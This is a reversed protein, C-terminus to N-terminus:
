NRLILQLYIKRKKENPKIFAKGEFYIIEPNIKNTTGIKLKFVNHEMNKESNTRIAM